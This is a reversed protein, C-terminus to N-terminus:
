DARHWICAIIVLVLTIICAITRVTNLGNWKQEFRMRESSIADANASNLDFKDLRQNLPVNGFITVGFTGILYVVSAIALLIFVNSVPQRYMVVTSLPLMILTGMFSAFFVPNLIARNISQMAMLYEKDPLKGLGINVSCSYAYFLGAILATVTTTVILIFIIM